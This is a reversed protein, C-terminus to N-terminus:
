AGADRRAGARGRISAIKEVRTRLEEPREEPMLYRVFVVGEREGNTDLWNSVGPDRGAVVIRFRGDPEFVTQKRNLSARTGPRGLSQLHRNWVVLSGFRCRPFRGEIVLAEDDALAFPAWLNSQDVPGQGAEGSWGSPPGFRNPARSAFDIVPGNRGYDLSLGRVFNSVRRIGRALAADRAGAGALGESTAHGLAGGGLVDVEIPIVRRRDVPAEGEFYHRTVISCTDPSLPLWPEPGAHPEVSAVLVYSGDAAIAMREDNVTAVVRGPPYREDLSGGGEVTFSTYVAGGTHGRIRYRLAPDIVTSQYIADPNDGYIKRHFSMTPRFEPRGPDCELALDLGSGLLHLAFRLSTAVDDPRTIGLGPPILDRDLERLLEVLEAYARRSASEGGRGAGDIARGESM